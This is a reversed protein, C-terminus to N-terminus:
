LQESSLINLGEVKVKSNINYRNMINVYEMLKIPGSIYFEIIERLSRFRRTYEQINEKQKLNFCM